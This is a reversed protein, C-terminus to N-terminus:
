SRIFSSFKDQINGYKPLNTAIADLLDDEHREILEFLLEAKSEMHNYLSGAQIGLSDALARTSINQFGKEAFLMLANQRILEHASLQPATTTAENTKKTSDSLTM